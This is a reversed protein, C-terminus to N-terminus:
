PLAGNTALAAELAEVDAASLSAGSVHLTGVETLGYLATIDTLADNGTITVSERVVRLGGLGQLTSLSPNSQLMLFDEVSVLSSLGGLDTVPLELLALGVTLEELSALAGLDSIPVDRLYLAGFTRRGALGDVSTLSPNHAASLSAIEVGALIDLDRVGTHSLVLSDVTRLREAQLATIGPLDYLELAGVEELSPLDLPGELAQAQQISLRDATRLHALLSLDALSEAAHLQVVGASTLEPLEPLEQLGYSAVFLRNAHTLGSLGSVRELRLHDWILVHEAEGAFRPTELHVLQHNSQVDLVGGPPLTWTTAYSTDTLAPNSRLVLGDGISCLCGFAGLDTLDTTQVTLTGELSSFTQCLDRIQKEARDGQVTLSGPAVERNDCDLDGGRCDQDIGDLPIDRAGPNVDARTDDCDLGITVYGRPAHRWMRTDNPDGFGDGDADRFWAQALKTKQVPEGVGCGSGAFVVWIWWHM